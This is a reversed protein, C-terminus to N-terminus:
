VRPKKTVQPLTNQLTRRTSNKDVKLALLGALMYTLTVRPTQKAASFLAPFLRVAPSELTSMSDDNPRDLLALLKANRDGFARLFREVDNMQDFPDVDDNFRVVHLSSNERVARMFIGVDNPVQGLWLERLYLLNPILRAMDDMSKCLAAHVTDNDVTEKQVSPLKICHLMCSKNMETADLGCWLGDLSAFSDVGLVKVGAGHPGNVFQAIRHGPFCFDRECFYVETFSIESFGTTVKREMMYESFILIADDDFNVNVFNLKTLSVNQHLAKVFREAGIKDFHFDITLSELNSTSELLASTADVINTFDGTNQDEPMVTITLDRLTGHHFVSKIANLDGDLEISRFTLFLRKLTQHATLVSALAASQDSNWVSLKLTQFSCKSAELVRMAPPSVCLDESVSLDKINPNGAISELICQIVEDVENDDTDDFDGDLVVKRLSESGRLFFLVPSARLSDTKLGQRTIWSPGIFLHLSSVHTNGKLALGLRRFDSPSLNENSFETCTPDNKRLLDLDQSFSAM